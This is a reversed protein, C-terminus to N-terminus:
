KDVAPRFRAKTFRTTFKQTPRAEIMDRIRMAVEAGRSGEIEVIMAAQELRQARQARSKEIELRLGATPDYERVWMKLMTESIDFEHAVESYSRPGIMGVASRKTEDTFKRKAHPQKAPIASLPISQGAGNSVRKRSVRPVIPADPIGGDPLLSKPIAKRPINHFQTLTRVINRPMFDTITLGFKRALVRRKAMNREYVKRGAIRIADNMM